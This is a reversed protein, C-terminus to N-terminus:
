RAGRALRVLGISLAIIAGDQFLDTLFQFTSSMM